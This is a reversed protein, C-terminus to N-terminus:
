RSRHSLAGALAALLPPQRLLKEHTGPGRTVDILARREFMEMQQTRRRHVHESHDISSSLRPDSDEQREKEGERM